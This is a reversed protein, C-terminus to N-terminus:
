RRSTQAASQAALHEQLRLHRFQYEAGVQRLVGRAHADDLFRFLTLPLRGLVVLLLLAFGFRGWCSASSVLVVALLFGMAFGRQTFGAIAGGVTVGTCAALAVALAVNRDERMSQRPSVLESAGPLIALGLCLGFVFGFVVYTAVDSPGPDGLGADLVGLVLASLLGGVIAAVMLGPQVRIRRPGTVFYWSVLNAALAVATTAVPIYPWGLDVGFGPVSSLSMGVSIYDFGGLALVASATLGIAVSWVLLFVSGHVPVAAPLRWWALESTNRDRLHEALVRLWSIAKDPSYPRPPRHEDPAAPRTRYVTPLYGAILQEEIAAPDAFGVLTAPDARPDAYVTRALYVMLPTALARALPGSPDTTLSAVVPDWRREAAIQGARLYAAAQAGAVPEVEVVAARALPTGTAGILSEYEEARCTVVLPRDATVAHNLAILASPLMRQPIEDLGDLVPVLRGSTVLRGAADRGLRPYLDALRRALWTDLHVAPDWASMNLLVPVADATQNDALLQRVLLVALSTKGAGPAGIIVLQRAPLQRWASAVTTVDGHLGLRTARGAAPGLIDAASPSVPRPTSAWRVALPEPHILGRNRAERDWQRRVLAALEAAARDLQADSRADAAGRRAMLTLAIAAASLVAGVISAIKDGTDLGGLM